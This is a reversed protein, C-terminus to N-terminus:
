SLHGRSGAYGGQQRETWPGRCPGTTVRPPPMETNWPSMRHRILRRRHVARMLRATTHTGRATPSTCTSPVMKTRRKQFRMVPRWRNLTTRWSVLSLTRGRSPPERPHNRRDSIRNLCPLARRDARPALVSMISYKKRRTM